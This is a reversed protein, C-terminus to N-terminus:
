RPETLHAHTVLWRGESREWITTFRLRAIGQMTPSAWRGELEDAVWVIGATGGISRYVPEIATWPPCTAIWGAFDRDAENRGYIKEWADTGWVALGDTTTFSQRLRDADRVTWADYLERVALEVERQAEAFAVSSMTTEM